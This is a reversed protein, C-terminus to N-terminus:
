RKGNLINLGKTIFERAEAVETETISSTKTPIFLERIDVGLAKAFKPLLEFKPYNTETCINSISTPSIGIKDALEDRSIGKLQMLEKIRLIQM